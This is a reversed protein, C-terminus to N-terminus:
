LPGAQERRTDREWEEEGKKQTKPNKVRQQNRPVLGLGKRAVALLGRHM